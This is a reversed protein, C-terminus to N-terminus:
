RSVPGAWDRHIPMRCSDLGTREVRTSCRHGDNLSEAEFSKLGLLFYFGPRTVQAFNGSVGPLVDSFFGRRYRQSAPLTAIQRNRNRPFLWGLWVLWALWALIHLVVLNIGTLVHIAQVLLLYFLSVAAFASLLWVHQALTRRRGLSVLIEGM